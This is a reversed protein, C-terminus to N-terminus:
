GQKEVSSHHGWNSFIVVNHIIVLSHIYLCTPVIAAVASTLLTCLCPAGCLTCRALCGKTAVSCIQTRIFVYVTCTSASQSIIFTSVCAKVGTVISCSGHLLYFYREISSEGSKRSKKMSSYIRLGLVSIKQATLCYVSTYMYVFESM